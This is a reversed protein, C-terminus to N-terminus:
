CGPASAANRALVALGRLVLDPLVTCDLQLLPVLAGAGGGTLYVRTGQGFRQRAQLASREILAASAELAGALIASGTDTALPSHGRRRSGQARVAIGRTGKLLSSVMLSPGPAILGGQHVGAADVVDVTTATGVDMVCVPHRQGAEHWAGIAAVWRDAGLRWVDRYGNQVGGAERSSTIFQPTPLGAAKLCRALTRDRTQGAVSVAIVATIKGALACVAAFGAAGGGELPFVQQRGLRTGRLLAWKIRSNGIDILLIAM